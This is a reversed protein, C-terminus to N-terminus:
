IWSACGDLSVSYLWKWHVVPMSHYVLVKRKYCGSVSLVFRNM